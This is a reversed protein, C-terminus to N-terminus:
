EHHLTGLPSHRCGVTKISDKGQVEMGSFTRGRLSASTNGCVIGSDHVGFHLVLDNKGDGNVDAIHGRGHAERAGNPGFRVSSPDVTTADFSATALIAVAIKGSGRPNIKNPFSGPKIDISVPQGAPGSTTVMWTRNGALVNAPDRRVEPTPDRVVVQVTHAGAAFNASSFRFSPGSAVPSNDVYWSASLQHVDPSPVSVDFLQSAGPPIILNSSLPSSSDIPSVLNYIRKVIQEENIQEFPVGLTRM